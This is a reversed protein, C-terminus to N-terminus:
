VFLIYFIKQKVILTIYATGAAIQAQPEQQAHCMVVNQDCSQIM